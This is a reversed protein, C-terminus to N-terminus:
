IWKAKKKVEFLNKEENIIIDYNSLPVQLMLFKNYANWVEVVLRGGWLRIRYFYEKFDYKESEM